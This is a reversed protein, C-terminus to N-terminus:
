QKQTEQIRQRILERVEDLHHPNRELYDRVLFHKAEALDHANLTNMLQRPDNIVYSHMNTIIYNANGPQTNISAILRRSALRIIYLKTPQEGGPFAYARIVRGAEGLQNNRRSSGRDNVTPLAVGNRIFRGRVPAPLSNWGTTLGDATIIDTISIDGPAVPAAAQPAANPVGAPRGRRPGEPANAQGAVPAAPEIGLLRNALQPSINTKSLKGRVTSLKFSERSNNTNIILPADNYIVAKYINAANVPPDAQIFDVKSNDSTSNSKLINLLQQDNFSKNEQRLYAFYSPLMEPSMVISSNTYRRSSFSSGVSPGARLVDNTQSMDTNKFFFHTDGERATLLINNTGDASETTRKAYPIVDVINLLVDIDIGSPLNEGSKFLNFVNEQVAVNNKIENFMEQVQGYLESNLTLALIVGEPSVEYSTFTNSDIIVKKDEYQKVIIASNPNNEANNLVDTIVSQDISGSDVLEILTKLPIKDLEPNELFYKSTRKNLKINPYSDEETYLDIRVRNRILTILVIAKGDKSVYLREDATLKFKKAKVLYKKVDFSLDEDLISLMLNQRIQQVISLQDQKSFADINKLLVDIKIIGQTGAIVKAIQPYQPLYKSIFTSNNIDKFLEKESRVLLYQKKFNFPEKIWQRVNIAKNRYDKTTREANSLPIYKLINKINPVQSLWPIRTNLDGWSFPGEMGPHNARNTYKYQGDNLVQIAVFSLVDSDPLAENKALYFTPEGYNEGFRYQDWYSGGPATICWRSGGNAMPQDVGYTICNGKRAGNWIIIEGEHYVVDPTDDEKEVESPLEAGPSATVIKILKSLPVIIEYKGGVVQKILDTGGKAILGSKIKDFRDIYAKLQEDSININLDDAEERYHQIITDLIAQSYENLPVLNHIVHLIFKDIQRM